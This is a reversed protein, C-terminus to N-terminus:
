VDALLKLLERAFLTYGAEVGELYSHEGFDFRESDEDLSCVAERELITILKEM